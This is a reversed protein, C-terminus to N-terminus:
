DDFKWYHNSLRCTNCRRRAKKQGTVTDTIRHGYDHRNLQKVDIPNM